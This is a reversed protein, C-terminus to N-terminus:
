LKLNNILESKIIHIIELNPIFERDFFSLIIYITQYIRNNKKIIYM